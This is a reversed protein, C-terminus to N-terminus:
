LDVWIIPCGEMIWRAIINEPLEPHNSMYTEFDDGYLLM